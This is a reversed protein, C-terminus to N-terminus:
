FLLHFAFTSSYISIQRTQLRLDVCVGIWIPAVSTGEESVQTLASFESEARKFVADSLHFLQYALPCPMETPWVYPCALLEPPEFGFTTIVVHQAANVFDYSSGDAQLNNAECPWVQFLQNLQAGVTCHLLRFGSLACSFTWWITLPRSCQIYLLRHYLCMYLSALPQEAQLLSQQM